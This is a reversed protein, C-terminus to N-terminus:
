VGIVVNKVTKAYVLYIPDPKPVYTSEHHNEFAHNDDKINVWM